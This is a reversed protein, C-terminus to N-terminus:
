LANILTEIDGITTNLKSASWTATTSTTSTDDITVPTAWSRTVAGNSVTITATYTGDASPTTTFRDTPITGDNELLIYNYAIYSSDSLTVQMTGANNNRGPGLQITREGQAQANAGLALSDYNASAGAGVATARNSSTQANPGIAVVSSGMGKVNYGIYVAYGVAGIYSSNKGLVLNIDKSNNNVVVPDAVSIVDNTIDIGTGATYSSGGSSAQVEVEEWSYTAPNAGDSVCKYFYGNTYSATTTGVFQVIDDVNDASATPMTSYQMFDQKDALETKTAYTASAHTQTEMDAIASPQVATDAKAGQAATAFDTTNASAATGLTPKNLIQAVGSNADWDSNVQAAPITPKDTLDNYSGSIAVTSLSSPQVATAGASAGSRITSLDNIAAQKGNWTSKEAASVFKHTTNTDNVLDASLPDQATIESQLGSVLDAVPIDITTGNQLTLVIQKNTSDYSGSVVVSELPLDITQASGLNNNDQDKLQLTMVYTSSDISWSASAVYKTTDALAGVDSANLVVVGTKGNVSEISAPQVDTQEWSYTGDSEVCKYFYGNVYGSAEAIQYLDVYIDNDMRSIGENNYSIGYERIDFTDSTSGGPYELCWCSYQSHDWYNCYFTTRGLSTGAKEVFDDTDITVEPMEEAYIVSFYDTAFHDPDDGINVFFRVTCNGASMNVGISSMDFPEPNYNDINGEHWVNNEDHYFEITNSEKGYVSLFTNVNFSNVWTGYGRGVADENEIFQISISGKLYTQGSGTFQVIKGLNDASAVPMSSYQIIDQKAELGEELDTESAKTDISAELTAVASELDAQSAKSDVTTELTTVAEQLTTLSGEIGAIREEVEDFYPQVVDPNWLYLLDLTAQIGQEPYQSITPEVVDPM